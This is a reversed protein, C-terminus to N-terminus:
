KLFDITFPYRWAEGNNAKITAIIIFIIHMIGLAILMPIGILLCILVLSIACYIFMSIMFNIIHKGVADVKANNDKNMLWLIVPVIFGLGVMVYGAFQSVHMLAIYSNESMGLLPNSGTTQSNETRNFFREKEKQYEEESIAGTRRLEDLTKLDDYNM